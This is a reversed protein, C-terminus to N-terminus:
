TSWQTTFSNSFEFINTCKKTLRSYELYLFDM